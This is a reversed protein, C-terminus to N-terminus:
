APVLAFPISPQTNYYDELAIPTAGCLLEFQAQEPMDMMSLQESVWVRGDSSVKGSLRLASGNVRIATPELNEAFPEHFYCYKGAGSVLRGVVGQKFVRMDTTTGLGYRQNGSLRRNARTMAEICRNLNEKGLDGQRRAELLNEVWWQGYGSSYFREENIVYTRDIVSESDLLSAREVKSCFGDFRLIFARARQELAVLQSFDEVMHRQRVHDEVEKSMRANGVVEFRPESRRLLKLGGMVRAEVDLAAQRLRHYHRLFHSFDFVEVRPAGVWGTFLASLDPFALQALAKFESVLFQVDDPCIAVVREINQKPVGFSLLSTKALTLEYERHFVSSIVEISLKDPNNRESAALSELIRLAGRWELGFSNSTYRATRSYQPHRGLVSRVTDMDLIHGHVSINGASFAGHVVGLTFKEAEQRAFARTMDLLSARLEAGPVFLHTPRDLAGNDVRAVIATEVEASEYETTIWRPQRRRLLALTPSTGFSSDFYFLDSAVCEWAADVIDVYGHGHDSDRPALALPTRGIGKLNISRGVYAARGSGQNGSMAIGLPDEQRDVWALHSGREDVELGFAECALPEMAEFGELCEYGLRAAIDRNFFALEIEGLPIRRLKITVFVREGLRQM